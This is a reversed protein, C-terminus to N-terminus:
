GPREDVPAYTVSLMLRAQTTRNPVARHWLRLDRIAVGGCDVLMRCSEMRAVRERDSELHSRPWLETAGNEETFATLAVDVSLALARGDRHISSRGGSPAARIWHETARAGEGLYGRLSRAVVTEEGFLGGRLPPRGLAELPVRTRARRERRLTKECLARLAAVTETSVQDPVIAFGLERVEAIVRDIMIRIM